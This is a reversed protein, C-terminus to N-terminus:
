GRTGPRQGASLRAQRARPPTQKTNCRRCRTAPRPADEGCPWKRAGDLEPKQQFQRKNTATM